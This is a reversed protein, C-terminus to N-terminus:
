KMGWDSLHLIQTSTGQMKPHNAQLNRQLDAMEQLNEQLNEQLVMHIGQLDRTYKSYSEQLNSQLDVTHIGQLNPQNVAEVSHCSYGPKVVGLTYYADCSLLNPSTNATTVFFLQRLIKGKWRLFTFFKGLVAVTFSGYTEMKLSSSQLISRSGIIKDFTTLNLLNVDAGTDAKLLVNPCPGEVLKRVKELIVSIPFQILHKRKNIQRTHVMHTQVYIPEGFKDYYNPSSDSSSGPVDVLHTSKKLCVKEYHRKIRCNRCISELAKCIQGKQHRPKGWRWYM